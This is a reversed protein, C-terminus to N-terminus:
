FPSFCVELLRDIFYTGDKNPRLPWNGSFMREFFSGKGSQQLTHVSTTFNIGGVNLTVTSPLQVRELKAKMALFESKEKEFAKREDSLLKWESEISKQHQQLHENIDRYLEQLERSVLEQKSM